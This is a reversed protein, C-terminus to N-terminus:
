NFGAMWPEDAAERHRSQVAGAGPQPFSQAAGPYYGRDTQLNADHGAFSASAGPPPVRMQKQMPMQMPMSSPAAYEQRSRGPANTNAVSQSLVSRICASMDGSFMNKNIFYDAVSPLFAVAVIVAILIWADRANLKDLMLLALVIAIGTLIAPLAGALVAMALVKTCPDSSGASVSQSM